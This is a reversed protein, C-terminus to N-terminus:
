LGSPTYRKWGLRLRISASIFGDFNNWKMLTLLEALLTLSSESDSVGSRFGTKSVGLIVSENWSRNVHFGAVCFLSFRTQVQALIYVIVSRFASWKDNESKELHWTLLVLITLIMNEVAGRQWLVHSKTNWTYNRTNMVRTGYHTVCLPVFFNALYVCWLM